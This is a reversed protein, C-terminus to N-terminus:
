WTESNVCLAPSKEASLPLGTKRYEKERVYCVKCTLPMICGKASVPLMKPWHRGVQREPSILDVNAGQHGVEEETATCIFYEAIHEHYDSHTLKQTGFQMNLIYANLILMNFLHVFLKHM